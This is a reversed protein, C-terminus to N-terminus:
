NKCFAYDLIKTSELDCIRTHATGVSYSVDAQFPTVTKERETKKNLEPNRSEERQKEETEM